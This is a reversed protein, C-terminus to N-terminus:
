VVIDPYYVQAQVRLGELKEVYYIPVFRLSDKLAWWSVEALGDSGKEIDWQLVKPLSGDPNNEKLGKALAVLLTYVRQCEEPSLNGHRNWNQSLKELELYPDAVAHLKAAHHAVCRRFEAEEKQALERTPGIFQSVFLAGAICLVVVSVFCIAPGNTWISNVVFGAVATAFLGIRLWFLFHAAQLREKSSRGFNFGPLDPVFIAM